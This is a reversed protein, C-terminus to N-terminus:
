LKAVVDALAFLPSATHPTGNGIFLNAAERYVRAAAAASWKGLVAERLKAHDARLAIQARYVIVLDCVDAVICTDDCRSDLDRSPCPFERLKKDGIMDTM